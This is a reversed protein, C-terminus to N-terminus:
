SEPSGESSGPISLAVGRKILLQANSHPLSVVDNAHLQYTRKDEGMFEPLDKLIRVSVYKENIVNASSESKASPSSSTPSSPSSSASSPSSSSSSPSNMMNAISGSGSAAKEPEKQKESPVQAKKDVDKPKDAPTASSGAGGAHSVAGSGDHDDVIAAIQKDRSKGIASLVEEYLVREEALLKDYDKKLLGSKSNTFATSTAREVIKGVRKMFVTEIDFVMSSLEDELMKYEVSRPRGNKMMESELEKVAAAATEYFDAPIPKLDRGKERRATQKIEEITKDLDM